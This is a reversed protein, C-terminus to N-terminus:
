APRNLGHQLRGRDREEFPQKARRTKFRHRDSAFGERILGASRDTIDGPGQSM